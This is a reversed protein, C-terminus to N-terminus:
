APFSCGVRLEGQPLRLTYVRRLRLEVSGFMRMHLRAHFSEPLKVTEDVLFSVGGIGLHPLPTIDLVQVDKHEFGNYLVARAGTGALPMRAFRRQETKLDKEATPSPVPEASPASAPTEVAPEAPPPETPAQRDNGKHAYVNHDAAEFLKEWSDADGPYEAVGYNLGLDADPAVPRAHQEFKRTIRQALSHASQSGTEPLLLAFEDGGIRFAYDSGRHITEICARALSRLIKDGAAHGYTDNVLKFKRLDILLLAVPLHRRRSRSLERQGYEKLLRRNNLGTLPDTAASHRLRKLEQYEVIVPNQMVPGASFYNAAAAGLTVARGLRKKLESRRRLVGEWHTLSDTESVDVGALSRLFQKLFVGQAAPELQHLTDLVMELIFEAADEGPPQSPPEPMTAEGPPKLYEQPLFVIGM